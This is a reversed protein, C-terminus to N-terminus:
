GCARQPIGLTANSTYSKLRCPWLVTSAAGPAPGANAISSHSARSLVVAREAELAYQLEPRLKLLLSLNYALINKAAQADRDAPESEFLKFM